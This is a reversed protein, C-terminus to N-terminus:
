VGPGPGRARGARGTPYAAVFITAERADRPWRYARCREGAPLVLVEGASLVRDPQSPSEFEFKLEGQVVLILDVEESSFWNEDIPEALKSVWVMEIGQGSFVTSAQGRLINFVQPGPGGPEDITVPDHTYAITGPIPTQEHRAQVAQHSSAPKTPSYSLRPATASASSPWSAASTPKTTQEAIVLTDSIETNSLGHAILRLM